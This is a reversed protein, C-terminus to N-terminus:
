GQAIMWSSGRNKVVAHADVIRQVENGWLRLAEQKELTYKHRHYVGAVGAKAAGSQHNLVAESVVLPVGLRQLGTAATRRIDHPTFHLINRDTERLVSAMIRRWGKPMGGTSHAPNGIAPFVRNGSLGFENSSSAFIDRIEEIIRAAQASLPVINAVGNKARSGPITWLNADFDFEDWEANIVEGRRQATLILLRVVTGFPYGEGLSADWLQGLEYDSLVRDRPKSAKPRWADRCPHAPLRDLKPMAWSYFSSLHQHVSRAMRLTEKGRGFAMKEIFRTVDGRTVTDAIRDGMEPLIYKRFVREIERATRKKGIVENTLYTEFLEGITGIGQAYGRNPDSRKPISKGQEIDTLLDRARRRAAALGFGLSHRGLTVNHVKSGIRKRLIYTKVGSAGVRLRLGAVISDTIEIQGIKPPLLGVIRADTLGVKKSM